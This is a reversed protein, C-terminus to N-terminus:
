HMEHGNLGADGYKQQKRTLAAFYGWSLGCVAIELVSVVLSAILYVELLPLVEREYLLDLIVMCGTTFIKNQVQIKESETKTDFFNKWPCVQQSGDPYICCSKRLDRSDSFGTRGRRDDSLSQSGRNSWFRFGTQEGASGDGCCRLDEQIFDWNELNETKNGSLAEDIYAVLKNQLKMKFAEENVDEQVQISAYTSFFMPIVLCGMLVASVALGWRNKIAASLTSTMSIIVTLVGLGILTPPFQELWSSLFGLRVMHYGSSLYLGFFVLIMGIMMLIMNFSILAKQYRDVRLEIVTFTSTQSISRRM